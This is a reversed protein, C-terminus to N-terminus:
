ISKMQTQTATTETYLFFSRLHSSQVNFQHIALHLPFALQCYLPIGCRFIGHKRATEQDKNKKQQFSMEIILYSLIVQTITFTSVIACVVVAIRHETRQQSIQFLKMKTHKPESTEFLVGFMRVGRLTCHLMWYFKSSYICIFLFLFFQFYSRHFQRSVALLTFCILEFSPHKSLLM